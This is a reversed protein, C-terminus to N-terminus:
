DFYITGAIINSNLSWNANRFRSWMPERAPYTKDYYIYVNKNTSSVSNGTSWIKKDASQAYFTVKDPDCITLTVSGNNGKIEKWGAGATQWQQRTPVAVNFTDYNDAYISNITGLFVVCFIGMILLKKKM